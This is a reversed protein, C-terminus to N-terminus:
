VSADDYHHGDYGEAVRLYVYSLLELLAMGLCLALISGTIVARRSIRTGPRTVQAPRQVIGSSEMDSTQLSM